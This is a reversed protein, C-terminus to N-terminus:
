DRTPQTLQALENVAFRDTMGAIYDCVTRPIGFKDFHCQYELPLIDPKKVYIEFLQTLFSHAKFSMRKVRPHQYFNENLFVHMRGKLPSMEDSFSIIKDKYARVDELTKVQSNKIKDESCSILDGVLMAIIQSILHRRTKSFDVSQGRQKMTDMAREVLAVEALQDFHLVGSQLGDDLDAALYAISDVVDVLQGELSCWGKPLTEFVQSQHKAIAERTELSLNLGPFDPQHIELFDVIRMAQINHEFGGHDKMLENMADQGAHGFPTHGLDHALAAGEVLDENLGLSRAVTRGIQATELTHTLRTRYYDGEHNVFVQTKYELRRFASSHIVRDRDQQFCTRWTDPKSKYYRGLSKNSFVAYPAYIKHEQDESLERNM